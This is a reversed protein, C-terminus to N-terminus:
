ENLRSVLSQTKGMFSSLSQSKKALNIVHPKLPAVTVREPEVWPYAEFNKASAQLLEEANANKVVGTRETLRCKVLLHGQIPDCGLVWWDYSVSQNQYM